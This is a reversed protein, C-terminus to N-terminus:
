ARGKLARWAVFLLGALVALYYPAGEGRDSLMELGLQADAHGQDAALRWWREAEAYDQPGGRGNAYMFGLNNQAEADGQDAALRYWRVAEVYDQPVGAGNLYM